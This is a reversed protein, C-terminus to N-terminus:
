GAAAPPSEGENDLWALDDPDAPPEVPPPPEAPDTVTGPPAAPPAIAKMVADQVLSAIDALSFGGLAGAPAAPAAAPAAPAGGPPTIRRVTMTAPVGRGQAQPPTVRPARPRQPAAAPADIASTVGLHKEIRALRADFARMQARVREYNQENPPM